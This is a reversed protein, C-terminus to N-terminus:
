TVRVGREGRPAQAIEKTKAEGFAQSTSLETPKVKGTNHMITRALMTLGFWRNDPDCLSDGAPATDGEAKLRGFREGTSGALLNGQIGRM